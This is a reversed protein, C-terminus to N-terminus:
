RTREAARERQTPSLAGPRYFRDYFETDVHSAQYALVTRFPGSGGPIRGYRRHLYECCAITAAIARDSYPGIGSQVAGGDRFGNAGSGDRFSGHAAGYKVDIFALVAEAMSPYAPPCYPQILPEGARHLGVATPVPIDRGTLKLMATMLPDGGITRSFPIPQMDFGLAEFWGYPHAAFHPFGGLGLAQSMLGLNQLMAGQEVAAFEYLWSEIMSVTGVRGAALDDNLHGGKSRAFKGLGAPAFRNRDDVLFYSMDDGFATLMLNIALATLEAVPVFYTTGPVNTSYNNFPPTFPVERPLEPRSDAIRVRMREYLPVLEGARALEILQPLETRELEQPRRVLWAGDDDIVILSVSHVSDGSAVTRGVFQMMINGSGSTGYPLEGLSNGTIGCAAFALAAQEALTLPRPPATSPHALPGTGLTMGPAFRRSRRWLLADMLPYERLRAAVDLDPHDYSSMRDIM